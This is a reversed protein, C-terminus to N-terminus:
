KKSHISASTEAAPPSFNVTVPPLTKETPTLKPKEYKM